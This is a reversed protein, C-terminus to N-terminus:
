RNPNFREFYHDIEKRLEIGVREFCDLLDNYAGDGGLFDWFEEAVKLEQPLDLMGAMTWRSYPKPEYPNYPIAILSSPNADPKEALLVATWELLTRKFEKFAGKNPKATKIDFLFIEGNENELYIDIMTPKVTRMEGTQCVERILEIEKQKDPKINAATLEDMIKQIEFQAAISIKSGASVQRQAVKFKSTALAIAVPEFITTGFNTNLSHIFAYLALRDKGLLRTHFPMSAPEPNYSEFRNKLSQKITEEVAHIQNQTLGM